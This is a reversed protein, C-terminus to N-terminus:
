RFKKQFEEELFLELSDAKTKVKSNFNSTEFETWLKSCKNYIETYSMDPHVVGLREAIEITLLINEKM